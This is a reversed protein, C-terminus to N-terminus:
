IIKRKKQFFIIKRQSLPVLKRDINNNENLNSLQQSHQQSHQANIDNIYGIHSCMPYMANMDHNRNYLPLPPLPTPDMTAPYISTSLDLNFFM